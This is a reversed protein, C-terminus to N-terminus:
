LRGADRRIIYEVALDSLIFPNDYWDLMERMTHIHPFRVGHLRYENRLAAYNAAFARCYGLVNRMVRETPQTARQQLTAAGAGTARTAQAATGACKSANSHPPPPLTDTAAPAFAHIVYYATM